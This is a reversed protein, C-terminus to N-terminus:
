QKLLPSKGLQGLIDRRYQQMEPFVNFFFIRGASDKKRIQDKQEQTLHCYLTFKSFAEAMDEMCSSSYSLPEYKSQLIWQDSGQKSCFSNVYRSFVHQNPYCFKTIRGISNSMAVITEEDNCVPDEVMRGGGLTVVHGIEHVMTHIQWLYSNKGTSDEREKSKFLNYNIYMNMKSNNVERDPHVAAFPLDTNIVGFRSMKSKVSSPVIGFFLNMTDVVKQLEVENKIVDKIM